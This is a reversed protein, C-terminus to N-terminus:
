PRQPLRCKSRCYQSGESGREVIGQSVKDKSISEAAKSIMRYALTGFLMRDKEPLDEQKQILHCMLINWYEYNREKPFAIRMGM